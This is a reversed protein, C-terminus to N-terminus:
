GRATTAARLTETLKDLQYELTELIGARRPVEVIEFQKEAFVTAREAVAVAAEAAQRWYAIQEEESWWDM